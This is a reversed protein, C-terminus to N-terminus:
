YGPHPFHQETDPAHANSPERFGTCHLVTKTQRQASERANYEKICKKALIKHTSAYPENQETFSLTAQDKQGKLGQNQIHLAPAVATSQM